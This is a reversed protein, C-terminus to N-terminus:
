GHRKEINHFSCTFPQIYFLRLTNERPKRFLLQFVACKGDPSKAWWSWIRAPRPFDKLHQTNPIFFM